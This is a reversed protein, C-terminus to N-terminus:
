RICYRSHNPVLAQRRFGPLCRTSLWFQMRESAFQGGRRVLSVATKANGAAIENLEKEARVDFRRNFSLWLNGLDDEIIYAISDTIMGENKSYATLKGRSYRALGGPLASGCVADHDLYLLFTTVRFGMPETSLKAADRACANSIPGETGIWLNEEADEVIAHVAHSLSLNSNAHNGVPATGFLLATKRM